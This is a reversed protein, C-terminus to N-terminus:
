MTNFIVKYLFDKSVYFIELDVRCSLIWAAFFFGAYFLKVWLPKADNKTFCSLLRKLSEPFLNSSIDILLRNDKEIPM